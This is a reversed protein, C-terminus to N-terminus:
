YFHLAFLIFFVGIEIREVAEDSEYHILRWLMLVAASVELLSDFWFWGLCHKRIFVWYFRTEAINYVITLIM